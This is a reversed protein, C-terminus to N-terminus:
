EKNKSSSESSKPQDDSGPVVCKAEGPKLLDNSCSEDIKFQDIRYDFLTKATFEKFQDGVKKRLMSKGEISVLEFKDPKLSFYMPDVLLRLLLNSPYFKFVLITDGSSTKEERIKQMTFAYSNQRELVAMEVEVPKGAILDKSFQRLYAILTSPVVLNDPAADESKKIGKTILDTTQYHTRGERVEFDYTKQLASNETMVHRVHGRADWTREVVQVGEPGRYTGVSYIVDGENKSEVHFYGFPGASPKESPFIKGELDLLLGTPADKAWVPTSFLLFLALSRM